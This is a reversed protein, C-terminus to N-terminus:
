GCYDDECAAIMAALIVAKKLAVMRVRDQEAKAIEAPSQGPAVYTDFVRSVPRAYPRPPSRKGKGSGLDAAADLVVVAVATGEGQLTRANFNRAAFTRGALTRLSM